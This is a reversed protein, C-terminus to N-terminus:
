RLGGAPADSLASPDILRLIAGAVSICGPREPFLAFLRTELRLEEGLHLAAGFGVRAPGAAGTRDSLAVPQRRSLLIDQRPRDRGLRGARIRTLAHGLGASGRSLIDHIEIYNDCLPDYLLDGIVLRQVPVTTGCRRIQVPMDEAIM